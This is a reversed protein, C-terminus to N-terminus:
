LEEVRQELEEILELLRQEERVLQLPIDTEMVYQSKREQILRLNEHAEALQRRLSAPEADSPREKVGTSDVAPMPLEPAILDLRTMERTLEDATQWFLGPDDELVGVGNKLVDSKHVEFVVRIRENPLEMAKITGIEWTSFFAEGGCKVVRWYCLAKYNSHPGSLRVPSGTELWRDDQDRLFAILHELKGYVIVEQPREPTMSKPRPAAEKDVEFVDGWDIEPRLGKGTEILEGIRDRRALYAVLERAKSAKGGGPLDGYDVELDFCLTRLEGENFRTALIQRLRVLPNRKLASRICVADPAQTGAKTLDACVHVPAGAVPLFVLEPGDTLFGLNVMEEVEQRWSQIAMAICKDLETFDLPKTLYTIAGKEMAERAIDTAAGGYATVIIVKTFESITKARVLLEFGGREGIGIL